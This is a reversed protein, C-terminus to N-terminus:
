SEGHAQRLLRVSEEELREGAEPAVDCAHTVEYGGEGYASRTPVYGITGDTYSTYFTHEFPSRAIISHGIETFIEGPATVLGIGQGLRLAAMEAPVPPLPKGTTLANLGARARELRRSAWWQAGPSGEARVRSQEAELDAVMTEGAAVSPPLLRPLEILARRVALGGEALAPSPSIGWYTRAVEAGLPLGLRRPHTWDWGMLLPNINGAAGQLFLCMTGTQEEVLRRAVGPFDASIHTCTGGLSVPHCAYNFVTALPRGDTADIRLVAVRPDFPGEPNQGLIITGDAIRERRNIGIHAAGYGVGLQCPVCTAGALAVVGALQHVLNALYPATQPGEDARSPDMTPGYHTHSCAVIVHDPAVATLAGVAARVAHVERTELWLLDCAIIAVREVGGPGASPGELVLATATLDDHLGDAPGRGAFGIMAIGLPPTITVRAVGARLEM